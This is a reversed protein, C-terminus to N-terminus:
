EIDLLEMKVKRVVSKEKKKVIIKEKPIGNVKVYWFIFWKLTDLNKQYEVLLHDLVELKESFELYDAKCKPVLNELIDIEENIRKIRNQYDLIPDYEKHQISRSLYVRDHIIGCNKLNQYISQSVFRYFQNTCYRDWDFNKSRINIYKGAWFENIMLVAASLCDQYFSQDLSFEKILDIMNFPKFNCIRYLKYRIQKENWNYIKKLYQFTDRAISFGHIQYYPDIYSDIRALIKKNRINEIRKRKKEYWKQIKPNDMLQELLEFFLQDSAARDVRRLLDFYKYKKTKRYDYKKQPVAVRRGLIKNKEISTLKEIATIIPLIDKYVSYMDRIIGNPIRNVIDICEPDLKHDLIYKKLQQRIKENKNM